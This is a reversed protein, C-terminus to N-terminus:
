DQRVEFDGFDKPMGSSRITFYRPPEYHNAATFPAAFHDGACDDRVFFANVGSFGCGVLRYGKSAGLQELASLSSNFNMTGQWQHQPNYRMVCNVPPPFAANYEIVVARPRYNLIARWVWYDNGDIDVSLLDFEPPVACRAFITEINEATIFAQAVTLRKQEMLNRFRRQILQTFNSSGEIWTGSWGKFLLYATNNELGDGVGFEVFYRNTVGIRRFIEQVIGDEGGQSYVSFEHRNLRKPEQYRPGSFLHRQVYDSVMVDALVKLDTQDSFETARPDM